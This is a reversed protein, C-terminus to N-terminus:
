GSRKLKSCNSPLNNWRRLQFVVEKGVKLKAAIDRDNFGAEYLRKFKEVNIKERMRKTTYFNKFEETDTKPM